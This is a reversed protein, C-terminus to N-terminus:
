QKNFRSLAMPIGYFEFRAMIHGLGILRGLPTQKYWIKEPVGVRRAGSPPPPPIPRAVYVHLVM